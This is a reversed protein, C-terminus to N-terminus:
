LLGRGNPGGGLGQGGLVALGCLSDLGVQDGEAVTQELAPQDRDHATALASGAATAGRGSPSTRRERAKANPSSMADFTSTGNRALNSAPSADPRRRAVSRRTSRLFIRSDTM